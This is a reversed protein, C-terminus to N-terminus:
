HSESDRWNTAYDRPQKRLRPSVSTVVFDPLMLLDGTEVSQGQISLTLTTLSAVFRHGRRPVTEIFHPAESSDGLAERLDRIYGKLVGESVRTDPWVGKLLEDKTVLRGAHEVLYRLVAFTKPPLPVLQTDRWLQENVPDLRFPPFVIHQALNVLGKSDCGEGWIGGFSWRFEV